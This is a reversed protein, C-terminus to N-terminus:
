PIYTLTSRQSEIHLSIPRNSILDAMQKVYVTPAPTPSGGRLHIQYEDGSLLKRAFKGM